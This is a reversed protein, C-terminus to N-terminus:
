AALKPDKLIELIVNAIESNTATTPLMVSRLRSVISELDAIPKDFVTELALPSVDGLDSCYSHAGAGPFLKLLWAITEFWLERQILGRAETPSMGGSALRDPSTTDLLRQDHNVLQKVRAILEAPDKLDKGALRALGLVDDIVAPLQSSKNALLARVAVVGLSYLDCPTSLLPWIEYPARAFVGTTKLVEVVSPTLRAPVTRFRAERPGVSDAKYVHAHFEVRENGPIPLKFWLLDHAELGLYDEAELTGELVIGDADERVERKRVKGTGFSHAGLGEPLFVSPEIRGTRLFYKQKTSKITLPHAQGPKLLHIRAGWLAPLLDGVVPLAIGFSAPTVNLMPTQHAAAHERVRRFMGLLVSAKLLFVENLRDADGGGGHFLFPMGKPKASWNRLEGYIGSNFVQPHGATPGQWPEGELVQIYDEASLPVFRLARVLSGEPNFVAMAEAGAIPDATQTHANTPCDESVPVFTAPGPTSPQHLYRVSSTSYPPLGMSDLLADDRCVRWQSAEVDAFSQSGAQPSKILLPSSHDKELGTLIVREPITKLELDCQAAWRSDLGHNSIKERQASAVETAQLWIELWDQIRGGADCIAGLYVRASPLESLLVFPSEGGSSRTKVLVCLSLAGTSDRSSLRALLYGAALM